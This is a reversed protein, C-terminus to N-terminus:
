AAVRTDDELKPRLRVSIRPPIFDYAVAYLVLALLLWFAPYVFMACFYGSLLINFSYNIPETFLDGRRGGTSSFPLVFFGLLRVVTGGQLLIWMNPVLRTNITLVRYAELWRLVGFIAFGPATLHKVGFVRPTLIFGTPVNVFLCLYAAVRALHAKEPYITALCGVTLEVISGLAHVAVVATTKHAEYKKHARTVVGRELYYAKLLFYIDVVYITAALTKNMPTTVFDFVPTYHDPFKSWDVGAIDVSWRHLSRWSPDGFAVVVAALAM